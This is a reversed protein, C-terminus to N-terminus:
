ADSAHSIYHRKRVSRRVGLIIAIVLIVAPAMLMNFNRLTNGLHEIQERRKMKVQRLRQKAQHIKLELEKKKQLISSGIVEQAKEETSGIVSNLENQFGTIEANIKTEEEATETEAKREIEDVVDFPRRFNGRSRISILDSSGSLDDVTNILLASNDGVVTKGFFYDRYAIIDSIFDVDAFVVVACDQEARTLGTVHRTIKKDNNPDKAQDPSEQSNPEVTVNIGDPFASKFKGTVLYGMVVPENGDVFREMLNSPNLFRMELSSTITWSNGKGTTTILPTREIPAKGAQKDESPPEVEKLVGAFLIRVQNLNATIVNGANFCPPVLNLFGIIKEPREAGSMSATLALGRDGAFTDKPMELGWNRMLVNLDSSQMTTGQVRMAMQDPQDAFCHPDVCVVTRGGKLVFQDIAFLTEELLNEPHIVLLIDINKIENADAPINV